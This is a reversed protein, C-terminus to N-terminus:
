RKKIKSLVIGLQKNIPNERSLIPIAPGKRAGFKYLEKLIVKNESDLKLGAELTKIAKVKNGKLKYVEALNIYYQPMYFEKKVAMKCFEEAKAMDWKSRAMAVGLWSYCASSKHGLSIVQELYQIAEAPYGRKILALGKDFLRTAEDVTEM